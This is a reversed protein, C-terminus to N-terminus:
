CFSQIIPQTFRLSSFCPTESLTVIYMKGKFDKIERKDHINLFMICYYFTGKWCAYHLTIVHFVEKWGRAVTSLEADKSPWYFQQVKFNSKTNTNSKNNNLCPVVLMDRIVMCFVGKWCCVIKLLVSINHPPKRKRKRYM